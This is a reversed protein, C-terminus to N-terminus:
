SFALLDLLSAHSGPLLDHGVLLEGLVLFGGLNLGEFFSAHLFSLGSMALFHLFMEVLCISAFSDSVPAVLGGILDLMSFKGLFSHGLLQLPELGDAHLLGLGSV